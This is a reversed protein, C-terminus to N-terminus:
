EESLMWAELTHLRLFMSQNVPYKTRCQLSSIVLMTQGVARPVRPLRAKDGSHATSHADAARTSELSRHPRVIMRLIRCAKGPMHALSKRRMPWVLRIIKHIAGGSYLSLSHRYSCCPWHRGRVM